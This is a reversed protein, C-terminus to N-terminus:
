FILSKTAHNAMNSLYPLHIHQKLLEAADHLFHSLMLEVLPYDIWKQQTSAKSTLVDVSQSCSTYALVHLWENM